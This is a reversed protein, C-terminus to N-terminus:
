RGAGKLEYVRAHDNGWRKTFLKSDAVSKEIKRLRKESMQGNMAANSYMGDSFVLYARAPKEVESLDRALTKAPQAEIKRVHTLPEDLFWYGPEFKWYNDFAYPFNRNPAAILSGKPATDYVKKVLDAEAPPFYSLKDKGAYAPVFTCTLALVVGAAVAWRLRGLAVPWRRARAPYVPPETIAAPLLAAAAFFAAWPLMFLVVRFLMESGYGNAVVMPAPALGLLVLPWAQKRLAPRRWVGYAALLFVAATLIRSMWSVFVPGTGTPTAGVGTEVNGKVNGIGEILAPIQERLFIQAASVNWAGVVEIVFVLIMWNRYRRTLCLALLGAMLMPPTLQHSAALLAVLPLLALTWLVRQPTSRREDPNEPRQFRRLVIALIALWFLYAVSQPSFYDQGVWNAASFVWVGTWVLRQDRTFVRFALLLAPILLLNSILPWWAMFQLTHEVGTMRLFGAQVAFFGPWENYADMLGLEPRPRAVDHTLFYDVVADHKWAWAYLPTPYLIAQTAREVVVLGVVYVAPWPGPRPGGRLSAFFGATLLALAIWYTFHLAGALGFGGLASVETQALSFRWLGLSTLLTLALAATAKKGPRAWTPPRTHAKGPPAAETAHPPAPAQAAPPLPPAQPAHANGTPAQAPTQAAPTQTAHPLAPAGAASPASAANAANAAPPRLPTRAPAPPQEERPRIVGPPAPSRVDAEPWPIRPWADKPKPPPEVGLSDLAADLDAARRAAAAGPRESPEPFQLDADPETAPHPGAGPPVAAAGRAGRGGEAEAAHAAADAVADGAAGDTTGPPAADTVADGATQDAIHHPTADAVADGAGQDTTGPPAEAAADTPSAATDTTGPAAHPAADAVADGPPEDTTRHPAVDAVADGAAEDTTGPAAQAAADSPSAPEHGTGPTAEGATEAASRGALDAPQVGRIKETAAKSPAPGPWEVRSLAPWEIRPPTRRADEPEPTSAGAPEATREHDPAAAPGTIEAGRAHDTVPRGTEAGPEHDAAPEGAEAGRAQGAPEGVEAGRAQGAAGAAEAAEAAEASAAPGSADADGAEEPVAATVQVGRAGEAAAVRMAPRQGSIEREEEEDEAITRYYAARRAWGTGYDDATGAAVESWPSRLTLTMTSDYTPEVPKPTPPAKHAERVVAIMGPAALLASIVQGILVAWGAGAIGVMPLLVLSGGLTLTCMIGQQVALQTTRGQVRLVGFYLEVIVRPFAAIAFLRLVTAGGEAYGSGFVALLKDAGAVLVLGVPMLLIGMRVLSGRIGDALRRPDYSAEATLSSAMNIALFEITGGITLAVYFYANQEGDFQMAVIVPLLNIMALSFMSGTCDGLLFRGIERREPPKRARTRRMQRPALRALVLWGLPIVSLTIALSWSTFIGLVPMSAALVVLLGLKGISFVLNGLPVWVAERLGTLVGEQLSLVTWGLTAVTFGIGVWLGALPAFNPGWLDLTLLFVACGFGVVLCSIGYTQLILRRTQLGGRPIFRVVAGILTTAALGAIFRMAAVAASGEGVAETSYYRAAVVWYGMGLVASVVTNLMLMYANRFLSGAGDVGIRLQMTPHDHRQKAQRRVPPKRPPATM